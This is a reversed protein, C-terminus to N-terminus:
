EFTDIRFAYGEVTIVASNSSEKSNTNYTYIGNDVTTSLGFAVIDNYVGVATGYSNTLPLDLKKITKSYIDVEVPMVARDELYNPTEGYYAPINALAYLKGNKHYKNMITYNCMNGDGEISTNNFVFSYDKDFDTEGAKIRLIGANHGPLAGYTGLAVIYIDKNEDMFISSPDVPRTPFSINSTSDTIMKLVENKDTDIILVDSYPREPAPINHATMQLLPVFLLNDRILIASPDPNQDGVGYASIDIEKIKTMTTHNLVVIKGILPCSVYAFDGRVAVGTSGSQTPLTCEGTKVLDDDQRTYKVMVDTELNWGSTVFVDNGSIYTVSNFPIPFANTNTLNEPEFDDILQIYVGGSQGDPNAVMTTVLIDGMLATPNEGKDKECSSLSFIFLGLIALKSLNRM